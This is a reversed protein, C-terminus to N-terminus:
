STRRGVIVAIVVLKLPWPLESFICGSSLGALAAAEATRRGWRRWRRRRRRRRRRVVRRRRPARVRARGRARPRSCRSRWRAPVRRTRAVSEDGDGARRAARQRRGRRAALLRRAAPRPDRLAALFADLDPRRASARPSRALEAGALLRRRRRGVDAVLEVRREFTSVYVLIGPAGRRARSARSSSRARACARAGARRVRKRPLLARKLPSVNACLVAGRSSPSRARRRPM